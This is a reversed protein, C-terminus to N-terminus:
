HILAKRVSGAIQRRRHVDVTIINSTNSRRHHLCRPRGCRSTRAHVHNRVDRSPQKRLCCPGGEGVGLALAQHGSIPRPDSAMANRLTLTVLVAVHLGNLRGCKLEDFPAGAPFPYRARLTCDANCHPADRCSTVSSCPRQARSDAPAANNKVQRCPTVLMLSARSQFASDARRRIALLCSEGPSISPERMFQPLIDVPM